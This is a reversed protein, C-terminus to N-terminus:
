RGGVTKNALELNNRNLVKFLNLDPKTVKM